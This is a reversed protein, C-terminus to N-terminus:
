ALARWPAPFAASAWTRDDNQEEVVRIICKTM